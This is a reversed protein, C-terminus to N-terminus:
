SFKLHQYLKARVLFSHFSMLFAYTFGAPGDLFGRKLFYTLFFKFFPYAVIEFLGVRKHEKFLEKARLTSYFNIDSLFEAVSQHPYHDIFGKFEGASKTTIFREHVSGVWSGSDRKVLRILGKERINRVEGHKLEKGWWFDRRKLYYADKDSKNKITKKIEGQLNESLEEDADVFLIWEGKAKQFGFNRQAAFNENLEHEFTRCNYKQAIEKTNDNSFNDIVIIEDSFLVSKLTNEITKEENKTLIVTSLRM